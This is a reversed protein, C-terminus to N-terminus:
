EKFEYRAGFRKCIYELVRAASEDQLQELAIVCQHIAAVELDLHVVDVQQRPVPDDAQQDRVVRPWAM